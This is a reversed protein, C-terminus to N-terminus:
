VKPAQAPSEPWGRGPGWRMPGRSCIPFQRDQTSQAPGESTCLSSAVELRYAGAYSSGGDLIEVHVAGKNRESEANGEEGSEEKEACRGVRLGPSLSGARIVPVCDGSGMVVPTNVLSQGLGIPSVESAHLVVCFVGIDM